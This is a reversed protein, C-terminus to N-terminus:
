SSSGDLLCHGWIDFALSEDMTQKKFVSISETLTGKSELVQSAAVEVTASFASHKILSACILRLGECLEEESSSDETTLHGTDKMLRNLGGLLCYIENTQGSSTDAVLFPSFGSGTDVWACGPSKRVGFDQRFTRVKALKNWRGADAYMNAILVYYGPKDPMLELLKEAAWEGIETKRHIMKIIIEEAKKLLGARGFLDVMCSFHQLHPSIGYTSQMQEFLKQGQIVLGSHSCASLAAVM